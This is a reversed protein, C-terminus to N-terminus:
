DRITWARSASDYSHYLTLSLVYGLRFGNTDCSYAFSTGALGFRTKPVSSFHEPVLQDLSSPYRGHSSRYAEIATVVSAAVQETARSQLATVAGTCFLSILALVGLWVFGRALSYRRIALGLLASLFSGVFALGLVGLPLLALSQSVGATTLAAVAIIAVICAVSRNPTM